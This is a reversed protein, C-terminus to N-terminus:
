SLPQYRFAVIGAGTGTVSFTGSSKPQVPGVSVDQTAVVHGTKDLFEVKVAFTRAADGQNTISGGLSAKADTPTFETFAIRAPMKFPGISSPSRISRRNMGSCMSGAFM